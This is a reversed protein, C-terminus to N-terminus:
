EVLTAATLVSSNNILAYDQLTGAGNLTLSGAVIPTYFAAGSVSSITVSASPAYIIGKLSSNAAANLVVPQVSGSSEYLLLGNYAGSTPASLILTPTGAYASTAGVPLYFTVNTGTITPSGTINLAGNIIYTGSQLTVTPSGPTGSGTITLGDYCGVPLVTDTSIAPDPLCGAVTYAPPALYALPDSVPAIGTVPLPVFQSAGSYSGVVGTSRSTVVGSGAAVLAAPGGSDDLISCNPVYVNFTNNVTIDSGAPALAFICNQGRDLTAVAHAGVNMSLLNFLSAFFTPQKQTVVAEVYGQRGVFAGYAPPENIAVVDGNAGNTVGNQAAATEGAFYSDGYNLESAAAIAAADAAIQMNRKTHFMVGIDAAFGVFGLLITMCLLTLIMTQGSEDKLDLKKM